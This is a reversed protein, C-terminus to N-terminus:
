CWNSVDGGLYDLIQALVGETFHNKNVNIVEIKARNASPRAEIKIFESMVYISQDYLEPDPSDSRFIDFIANRIKDAVDKQFVNESNFLGDM